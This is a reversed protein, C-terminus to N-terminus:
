DLVNFSSLSKLFDFLSKELPYFLFSYEFRNFALKFYKKNIKINIRKFIPISFMM